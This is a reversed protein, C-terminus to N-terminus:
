WSDEQIALKKLLPQWWEPHARYWDVTERFGQEFPIEPAWGLENQIKSSDLLYRRDHGPRDTIPQILSHPKGLLDLVLHAMDINHM